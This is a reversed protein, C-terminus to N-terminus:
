LSKKMESKDTFVANITVESATGATTPICITTVPPVKVMDFGRYEIGKGRNTVLAAGAKTIDLCSGGGIGILVDINDLGRLEAVIEDLYDYDPEESGRLEIVELSRCAEELIAKIEGFYSSHEVVGADVLVAIDRMEKDNLFEAIDRSAGVGATLQTKVQFYFSQKM